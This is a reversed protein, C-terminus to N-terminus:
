EVDYGNFPTEVDKPLVSVKYGFVSVMQVLLSVTMDKAKGTSLRDWLAARTVGLHKAYISQSIGSQKFLLNVIQRATM